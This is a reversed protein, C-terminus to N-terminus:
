GVDSRCRCPAEAAPSSRGGTPGTRFYKDAGHARRGLRRYINGETDKGETLRRSRSTSCRQESRKPLM